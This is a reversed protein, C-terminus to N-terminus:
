ETKLLGLLYSNDLKYYYKSVQNKCFEQEQKNELEVCALKIKERYRQGKKMLAIGSICSKREDNDKSSCVYPFEKPNNAVYTRSFYGLANYCHTKLHTQQKSCHYSFRSVHGLSKNRPLLITFM